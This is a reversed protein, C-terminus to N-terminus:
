FMNGNVNCNNYFLRIRMGSGWPNGRLAKKILKEKNLSIDHGPTLKM